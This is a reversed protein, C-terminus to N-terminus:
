ADGVGVGGVGAGGVLVPNRYPSHVGNGTGFSASQVWGFFEPNDM